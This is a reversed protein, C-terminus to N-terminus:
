DDDDYDDADDDDDDVHIYIYSGADLPVISRRRRRWVGERV